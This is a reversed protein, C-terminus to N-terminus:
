FSPKRSLSQLDLNNSQCKKFFRRSKDDHPSVEIENQDKSLLRIIESGVGKRRYEKKVFLMVSFYNEEEKFLFGWGIFKKKLDRVFCVKSSKAMRFKEFSPILFGRKYSCKKFHRILRRSKIYRSFRLYFKFKGGAM